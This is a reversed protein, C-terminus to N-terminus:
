VALLIHDLVGVLACVWSLGLLAGGIVDTLYHAGLALRSWMIGAAWVCFLAILAEKPTTALPGFAVVLAWGGFFVVATVAHGSPYSNGADLGVLWYDPRVRGYYMKFLEALGQTVLQSGAVIVPIWVPWHMLAFLAVAFFLSATLFASRGSLTLVRALVTLQSRFGAAAVDFRGLDARMVLFGLTIFTAFLAVALLYLQLSLIM